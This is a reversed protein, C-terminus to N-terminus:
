LQARDAPSTPAKVISGDLAAVIESRRWRRLGGIEIPAPLLKRRSLRGITRPHCELMRAVVAASVFVAEDSASLDPETRNM